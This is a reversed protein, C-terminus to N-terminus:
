DVEQSEDKDFTGEVDPIDDDAGGAAAAGAGPLLGQKQFQEALKAFKVMNEPGMQQLLQPATSAIEDLTKTEAQGSIVYTNAQINAQKRIKSTFSM